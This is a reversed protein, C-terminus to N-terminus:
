GSLFQLKLKQNLSLNELNVWGKPLELVRFYKPNWFLIRWPKLSQTIKQVKFDRDLIVVDIKDQVFFTHIGFRAEFYIPNINNTFMLGFLKEKFSDLKRVKMVQM